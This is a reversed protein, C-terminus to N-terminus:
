LLEERIRRIERRVTKFAIAVIVAFIAQDLPKDIGALIFVPHWRFAARNDRKMSYGLMEGCLLCTTKNISTSLVSVLTCIDDYLAFNSSHDVGSRRYQGTDVQEAKIGGRNILCAMDGDGVGFNDGGCGKDDCLAGLEGVVVVFPLEDDTKPEVDFALVGGGSFGGTTLQGAHQM